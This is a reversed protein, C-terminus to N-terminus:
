KATFLVMVIYLALVLIFGILVHILKKHKSLSVDVAGAETMKMGWLPKDLPNIKGKYKYSVVFYIIMIVPLLIKYYIGSVGESLVLDEWRSTHLFITFIYKGLFALLLLIIVNLIGKSIRELKDDGVIGFVSL